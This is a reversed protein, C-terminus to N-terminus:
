GGQYVAWPRRQYCSSPFHLFCRTSYSKLQMAFPYVGGGQGGEGGHGLSTGPSTTWPASSQDQLIEWCADGCFM